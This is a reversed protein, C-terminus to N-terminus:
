VNGRQGFCFAPPALQRLRVADTQPQCVHSVRSGEENGGVAVRVAPHLRGRHSFGFALHTLTQVFPRRLQLLFVFGELPGSLEEVLVLVITVPFGQVPMLLVEGEIAVHWVIGRVSRSRSQIKPALAATETGFLGTGITNPEKM